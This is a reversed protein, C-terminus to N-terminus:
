KRRLCHASSRRRCAGGWRCLRSGSSWTGDRRRLRGGSCGVDRLRRLATVGLILDKVVGETDVAMIPVRSLEIAVTFLSGPGPEMVLETPACIHGFPFEFAKIRSLIAREREMRGTMDSYPLFAANLMGDSRCARRIPVTATASSTRRELCMARQKLDLNPYIESTHFKLQRM